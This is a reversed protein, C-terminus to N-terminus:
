RGLLERIKSDQFTTIGNANNSDFYEFYSKEKMKDAIEKANLPHEINPVAPTAILFDYDNMEETWDITLFGNGDIVPPDNDICYSAPEFTDSYGTYIETWRKRIIDAGLKDKSDVTPNVLLGVTGWNKNLTPKDSWLGEASALAFAQSELIRANKIPEKFGLIYAQGFKTTPHNSFIMSYTDKRSQSQRGYRIKVKVAMKTSIEKLRLTRWKEKISAKDWLLSGILIAGGKFNM